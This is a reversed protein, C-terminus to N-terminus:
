IAELIQRSQRDSLDSDLRDTSPDLVFNWDGVLIIPLGAVQVRRLRDQLDLLFARREQPDNPGYVNVVLAELIQSRLHTMVWRGEPHEDVADLVPTGFMHFSLTGGSQPQGSIASVGGPVITNRIYRDAQEFESWKTEQLLAVHTGRQQLSAKINSLKRKDTIGQVNLSTIGILDEAEGMPGDENINSPLSNFLSERDRSVPVRAVYFTYNLYDSLVQVGTYSTRHEEPSWLRTSGAVPPLVPLELSWSSPHAWARSWLMLWMAAFVTKAQPGDQSYNSPQPVLLSSEDQSVPDPDPPKM